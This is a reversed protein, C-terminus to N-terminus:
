GQLRPAVLATLWHMFVQVRQPLHRRHAYVISVPLPAARWTPLVEVLRREQLHVRM